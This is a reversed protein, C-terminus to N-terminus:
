SAVIDGANWSPGYVYEPVYASNDSTATNHISIVDSAGYISYAYQVQGCLIFLNTAGVVSPLVLQIRTM